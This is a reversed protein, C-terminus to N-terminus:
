AAPNITSTVLDEDIVLRQGSETEKLEKRSFPDYEFPKLEGGAEHTAYAKIM